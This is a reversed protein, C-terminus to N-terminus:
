APLFLNKLVHQLFPKILITLPPLVDIILEVRWPHPARIDAAVRGLPHFIWMPPGSFVGFFEVVPHNLCTGDRCSGSLTDKALSVRLALGEVFALSAYRNTLAGSIGKADTRATLFTQLRLGNIKNPRFIEM